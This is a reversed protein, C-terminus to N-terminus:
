PTGQEPPINPRLSVYVSLSYYLASDLLRLRHELSDLLRFNGLNWSVHFNHDLIMTKDAIIMYDKFCDRVFAATFKVECINAVMKMGYKVTTHSKGSINHEVYSIM